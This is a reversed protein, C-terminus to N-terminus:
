LIKKPQFELHIHNGEIVFDFQNNPYCELFEKKIEALHKEIGWIRLDVAHGIFHLSGHGHKGDNASTIITHVGYKSVIADFTTLAMTLPACVGQLNITNDKIKIM